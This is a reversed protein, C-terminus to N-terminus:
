PRRSSREAQSVAPQLVGDRVALVLSAARGNDGNALFKVGRPQLCLPSTTTLDSAAVAARLALRDASRGRELADSIVAVATIGAAVPGDLRAGFRQLYRDQLPSLAPLGLAPSWAVTVLLNEPLRGVAHGYDVSTQGGLISGWARPAFSVARMARTLRVADELGNHGVLM